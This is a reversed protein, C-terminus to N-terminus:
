ILERRMVKLFTEILQGYRNLLPVMQEDTAQPDQLSAKYMEWAQDYIANGASVAESTGVIRVATGSDHLAKISQPTAEVVAALREDNRVRGSPTFARELAAACSFFREYAERRRQSRAVKEAQQSTLRATWWGSFAGVAAGAVVGAAGILAITVPDTV